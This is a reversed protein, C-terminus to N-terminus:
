KARYKRGYVGPPKIKPVKATIKRGTIREWCEGAREPKGDPGRSIVNSEGYQEVIYQRLFETVGGEVTWAALSLTDAAINIRAGLQFMTTIM